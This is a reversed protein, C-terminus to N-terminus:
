FALIYKGMSFVAPPPLSSKFLSSNTSCLLKYTLFSHYTCPDYLSVPMSLYLGM